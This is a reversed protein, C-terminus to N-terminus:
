RNSGAISWWVTCLNRWSAHQDERSQRADNVQAAEDRSTCLWPRSNSFPQAVSKEAAVFRLAVRLFPVNGALGIRIVTANRHIRLGRLMSGGMPQAIGQCNSISSVKRSMTPKQSCAVGVSFRHVFTWATVHSRVSPLFEPARDRLASRSLSSATMLSLDSLRSSARFRWSILDCAAM